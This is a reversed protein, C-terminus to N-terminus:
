LHSFSNSQLKIAGGTLISEQEMKAVMTYGISPLNVKIVKNKLAFVKGELLYIPGDVIRVVGCIDVHTRELGIDAYYSTFEKIAEIEDKSIIAPKGRWYLLSIVGDTRKVLAIEEDTINAFVCSTFLPEEFVKNRRFAQTKVRNLPYYSEIKRKSLLSAVKKEYKPKTYVIYWNKQM